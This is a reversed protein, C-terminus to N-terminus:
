FDKMHRERERKVGSGYDRQERQWRRVAVDECDCRMKSTEERVGRGGGGEERGGM